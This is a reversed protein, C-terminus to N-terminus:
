YQGKWDKVSIKKGFEKAYALAPVPHFGHVNSKWGERAAEVLTRQLNNYGLRAIWDEQVSLPLANVGKLVPEHTVVKKGKNESNWSRVAAYSQMDGPVWDPHDGPDDVRTVDTMAKVVVEVNRRKVPAATGLVGTIETTLHDQVDQLGRLALLGRPDVLGDSLATGKQIKQGKRVSVDQTAPVYHKTNGVYVNHGGQAAKEVRRVEGTALALPAANPLAAPM